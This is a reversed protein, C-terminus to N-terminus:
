ASVCVERKCVAFCNNSQLCSLSVFKLGNGRNVHDEALEHTVACLLDKELLQTERSRKHIDYRAYGGNV